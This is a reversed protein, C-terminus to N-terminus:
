KELDQVTRLRRACEDRYQGSLSVQSTLDEQLRKLLIPMMHERIRRLSRSLRHPHAPISPHEADPAEQPVTLRTNQSTHQTLTSSPQFYMVCVSLCVYISSNPICRFTSAGQIVMRAELETLMRVLAAHARTDTSSADLGLPGSTDSSGLGATDALSGSGASDAAASAASPADHRRALLARYETSLTRMFEFSQGTADTETELSSDSSGRRRRRGFGREELLQRGVTNVSGPASSTISSSLTSTAQPVYRIDQQQQQLDELVAVAATVRRSDPPLHLSQALALSSTPPQQAIAAHTSDLSKDTPTATAIAAQSTRTLFPPLSFSENTPQHAAVGSSSSGASPFHGQQAERSGAQGGMSSTLEM